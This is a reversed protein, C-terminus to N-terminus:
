HIPMAGTDDLDPLFGRQPAPAPADEMVSATAVLRLLGILDAHRERPTQPTYARCGRCHFGRWGAAAAHELCRDYARCDLRRARAALEPDEVLHAPAPALTIRM